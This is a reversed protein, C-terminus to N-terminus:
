YYKKVMKKLKNLSTKIFYNKFQYLNMKSIKNRYPELNSRKNYPCNLIYQRINSWDEENNNNYATTLHNMLANFYFDKDSNNKYANFETTSWLIYLLIEAFHPVNYDRIIDPYHNYYKYGVREQILYDVLHTVEHEITEYVQAYGVKDNVPVTIHIPARRSMSFTGTAEDNEKDYDDFYIYILYDQVYGNQISFSDLPLTITTYFPTSGREELRKFVQNVIDHIQDSFHSGSTRGETLYYKVSEM